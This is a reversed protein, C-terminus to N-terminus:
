PILFSSVFFLHHMLNILLKLQLGLVILTIPCFSTFMMCDSTNVPAPLGHLYRYPWPYLLLYLCPRPGFNCINLPKIFFAADKPLCCMKGWKCSIPVFVKSSMISPFFTLFEKLLLKLLVLVFRTFCCLLLLICRRNCFANFSPRLM